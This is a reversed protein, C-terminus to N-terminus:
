NFVSKYYLLVIEEVTVLTKRLSDFDHQGLAECLLTKLGPMATQEDLMGNSCLRLMHFLHNLFAGAELLSTADTGSLKGQQQLWTFINEASGTITTGIDPAHHLLLYQAVFDLDILGGRVYKLNWINQAAFEKEIRARMDIVDQKLKNKDRSTVLIQDILLRTQEQLTRGGAILRAKTFAMFEFTWASENFYQKLGDLSTILLSQGGSPRLRTDVEYLRGERGMSTLTNLLRGALRNYYISANLPKEGDSMSESKANYVFVLDVDSSFTMECSGLKGLAIIAFSSGTIIGHSKTFENSVADLTVNIIVDALDSLFQGAQPATIKHKLLHVGAQFQKENRFRM